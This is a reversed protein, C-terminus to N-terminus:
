LHRDRGRREPKTKEQEVIEGNNKCKGTLSLKEDLRCFLQYPIGATLHAPDNGGWFIAGSCFYSCNAGGDLAPIVTSNRCVSMDVLLLAIIKDFLWSAAPYDLAKEATKKFWRYNKLRYVLRNFSKVASARLGAKESNIIALASMDFRHACFGALRSDALEEFIRKIMGPGDRIIVLDPTIIEEDGQGLPFVYIAKMAELSPVLGKEFSNEPEKLGLVAPAWRCRYISGATIFLKEGRSARSVADCYAPGSYLSYGLDPYENLGSPDLKIGVPVTAFEITEVERNM